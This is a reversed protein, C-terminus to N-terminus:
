KKDKLKRLYDALKRTDVSGDAEVEDSDIGLVQLLTKVREPSLITAISAVGELINLAQM